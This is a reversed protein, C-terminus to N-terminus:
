PILCNCPWPKVPSSSPSVDAPVVDGAKILVLDGSVHSTFRCGRHSHLSTGPVVNKAPIPISEGNRIVFATPSSLQRLSDMTKEARYEQLFGVSSIPDINVTIKCPLVYTTNLAIVAAIVAGEVFDQVGFSVALAALLVFTLANASPSIVIIAPLSSTTDICVSSAWFYGGRQSVLRAM